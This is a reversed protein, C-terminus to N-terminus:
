PMPRMQTLGDQRVMWFGSFVDDDGDGGGGDGGCGNLAASFRLVYFASLRNNLLLSEKNLSLM